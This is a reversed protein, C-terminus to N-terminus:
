ARTLRAWTTSLASHARRVAPVPTAKWAMCGPQASVGPRAAASGRKRRIRRGSSRVGSCPASVMVQSAVASGASSPLPPKQCSRRRRGSCRSGHVRSAALAGRRSHSWHAPVAAIAM